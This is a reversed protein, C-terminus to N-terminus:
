SGLRGVPCGEVASQEGQGPPQGLESHALVGCRRRVTRGVGTHAESSLLQSCIKPGFEVQVNQRIPGSEAVVREPVPERGHVATCGRGVAVLRAQDGSRLQESQGVEALTLDGPPQAVAVLEM